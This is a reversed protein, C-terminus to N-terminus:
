RVNFNEFDSLLSQFTPREEPDVKWCKLLIEFVQDPCDGKSLREGEPVAVAVQKNSMYNYPTNGNNFIEWVLVGFAWVDTKLSFTAQKLTEPACRRQDTGYTWTSM